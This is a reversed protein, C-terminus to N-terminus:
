VVLLPRREGVVVRRRRSGGHRRCPRGPGHRREPKGKLSERGLQSLLYKGVEVVCCEDGERFRVPEEVLGNVRLGHGREVALEGKDHMDFVKVGFVKGADDVALLVRPVVSTVDAESDAAGGVKIGLLGMGDVDVVLSLPYSLGGPLLLRCPPTLVPPGLIAPLGGPGNGQSPKADLAAHLFTKVQGAMKKDRLKPLLEPDALAPHHPLLGRAQFACSTTPIARQPWPSLRSPIAIAARNKNKEEKTESHFITPGQM